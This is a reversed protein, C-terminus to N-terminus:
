KQGVVISFFDSEQLYQNALYKIKDANLEALAKFARDVMDEGGGFLNGHQYV